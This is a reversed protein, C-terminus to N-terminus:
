KVKDSLQKGPRFKVVKKAPIKIPKKTQPNIGTRAKRKVVSFSGFGVLGFKGNKKLEQAVTAMFVELADAAAAKTIGTEEAIVSVVDAKTM